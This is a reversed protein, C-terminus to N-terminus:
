HRTITESLNLITRALMTATALEVPDLDSPVESDGVALLERAEEPNSRFREREGALFDQLLGAEEESPKRALVIEYGQQIWSEVRRDNTVLREGLKRAAEVFQPDHLLVLAQLPTNTTSRSFTCVERNPADFTAMMPHHAARKWITYLGRRYLDEGTDAEYVQQFNKRNTLEEWLGPPQYPKVSPGGIKRSLLGSVALANDRIMEASMRNRPGRALLRNEPDQDLLKRSTDSRQRYTASSVITKIMAQTDWGSEVFEAALWDLLGPHSPWESQSGFDNVTKVIGVGFLQHWLRNMAVRATLPHDPSTLWQALGLRNAPAGEPLPPLNEPVEAVVKEMPKDYMGRELIFTERPQDDSMIMTMPIGAEIDTKEKELRALERAQERLSVHQSRFARKVKEREAGSRDSEPKELLKSLESGAVAETPNALSTLALRIRGFSHGGFQSEFRLRVYVSTEAGPPIPEELGVAIWHPAHNSNGDFAWGTKPKGDIAGAVEYGKQEYDAAVKAISRKREKGDADLHFIEIETLVANGNSSRGPGNGVMSEHTLAEVRIGTVETSPDLDLRFTNIDKGPVTGTALLSQDQQKQFVTGASSNSDSPFAIEWPSSLSAEWEKQEADLAPNAKMLVAHLSKRQEEVESLRAEQEPTPAPIAPPASLPKGGVFGKEPVNNFFAYLQYFDKQSVPDYKHDHCRACELTMGMFVTGMTTVRDSVYSVRYEEDIVGGEITFPHNRNFGTAIKQELTADPLLDGALQWTLFDDYTQNRNYSDIVWDRWRWMTRFWDYQYGSTDAYRAADLWEVAMREGYADSALLRDVVKEYADSSEDALFADVEEPTPPLGTLDFSLRRILTRRDAEPSPAIGAAELKELVFSDIPNRVWDEGEVDPEEPKTVSVFTWLDSYNAGQEIWRRLLAIEDETFGPLKSEPPPMLDDPDDTIIRYFLESKDPDGPVVTFLSGEDDLPALAGERTDLRLDAKRKNNDPGHCAFCRDSLLPRIDRNFDIPQEEGFTSVLPSLVGLFLGM